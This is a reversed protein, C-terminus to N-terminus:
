VGSYWSVCVGDPLPFQEGRIFNQPKRKILRKDNQASLLNQLYPFVIIGSVRLAFFKFGTM